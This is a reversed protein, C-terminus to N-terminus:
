AFAVDDAMIADVGESYERAAQAAAAAPDVYSEGEASAV